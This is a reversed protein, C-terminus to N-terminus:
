RARGSPQLHFGACHFFIAMRYQTFLCKFALSKRLRTDPKWAIANLAEQRNQGCARFGRKPHGLCLGGIAETRLAGCPLVDIVTDITQSFGTTRVYRSARRDTHGCDEGARRGGSSLASGPGVPRNGSAPPPRCAPHADGCPRLTPGSRCTRRGGGTLAGPPSTGSPAWGSRHLERAPTTASRNPNRSLDAPKLGMAVGAQVM